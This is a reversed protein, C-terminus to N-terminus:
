MKILISRYNKQINLKGIVTSVKLIIAECFIYIIRQVADKKMAAYELYAENRLIQAGQTQLKKGQWRKGPEDPVASCFTVRKVNVFINFNILFMMSFFFCLYFM